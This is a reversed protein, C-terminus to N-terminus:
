RNSPAFITFPYERQKLISALGSTDMLFLFSSFDSLKSLELHISANTAYPSLHMRYDGGGYESNNEFEHVLGNQAAQGNALAVVNGDM